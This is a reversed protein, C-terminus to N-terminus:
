PLGQGAITAIFSWEKMRFGEGGKTQKVPLSLSSRSPHSLSAHSPPGLSLPYIYVYLQNVESRDHGVRQSGITQLAGLEETGPIRWALISTAM